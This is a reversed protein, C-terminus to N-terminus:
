LAAYDTLSNKMRVRQYWVEFARIQCNDDTNMSCAHVFSIQDGLSLKIFHVLSVVVEICRNRCCNEKKVPFTSFTEYLHRGISIKWVIKKLFEPIHQCVYMCYSM